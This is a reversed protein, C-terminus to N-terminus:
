IDKRAMVRQTMNGVRNMLALENGYAQVLLEQLFENNPEEELAESIDIIAQRIVALNREVDARAEPSLNELEEDLNSQVNGAARGYVSDLTHESGFAAREFTMNTPVVQVVPEPTGAENYKMVSYTVMSSAGVLLFVAAAQAYWPTQRLGGPKERPENIAAEIGPWLDRSPAIETALKRAKTTMKDDQETM